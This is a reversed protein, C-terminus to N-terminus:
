NLFKTNFGFDHNFDNGFDKFKFEKMFHEVISAKPNVVDTKKIFDQHLRVIIGLPKVSWLLEYWCPLIDFLISKYDRKFNM